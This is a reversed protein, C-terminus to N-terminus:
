EGGKNNGSGRTRLARAFTEQAHSRVRDMADSSLRLILGVRDERYKAALADVEAGLERSAPAYRHAGPKQPDRRAAGGAVLNQLASEVSSLELTLREALQRATWAREPTDRLVLLVQVDEMSRIADRLLREFAEVSTTDVSVNWESLWGRLAAGTPASM